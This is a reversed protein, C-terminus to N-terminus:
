PVKTICAFALITEVLMIFNHFFGEFSIIPFLYQDTSYMSCIVIFVECLTVLMPYNSLEKAKNQISSILYSQRNEDLGKSEM